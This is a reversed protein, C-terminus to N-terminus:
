TPTWGRLFDLVVRAPMECPRLVEGGSTRWVNASVVGTGGLQEAYLTSTAGGAHDTRTLGWASGDYAVATWGPPVREVLAHLEEPAADPVGPVPDDPVPGDPGPNV